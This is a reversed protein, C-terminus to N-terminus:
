IEQGLWAYLFYVLLAVFIVLLLTKYQMVIEPFHAGLLLGISLLYLKFLAAQWWSFTYDRFLSM